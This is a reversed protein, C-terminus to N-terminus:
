QQVVPIVSLLELNKADTYDYQYLGDNGIVLLVNGLPIVDYAHREQFFALPTQDMNLPDKADFTKLGFAGECIFLLSDEIGLGHPNQMPYVKALTPRTLDKIDVVELQNTFGQCANGSRLTVYAYDGQVVVPDCSQVHAYTSLLAPNAPNANDFIHMGNNTGIFLKDEYPFITEVGWSLIINHAAQPSAPSSINFLQMNNQGVTYLYNDYLTFRAMSGGIGPLNGAGSSASFSAQALSRTFAGDELFFPMPQPTINGGCDQDLTETVWESKWDIAVMDGDITYDFAFIDTIRNVERINNLDSIDIAVLDLFSDAYLINDRVAIDINGPINIFLLTKPDSPDTNDIVHVGENIENVFIYPYKYYIKGPRRLEESPEVKVATRLESKLKFVPTYSLYTRTTKCSDQCGTLSFLFMGFLYLLLHGQYLFTYHRKM